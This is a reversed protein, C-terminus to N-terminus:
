KLFESQKKEVNKIASKVNEITANYSNNWSRTEAKSLDKDESLLKKTNELNTLQENLINISDKYTNYVDDAKSDYGLNTISDEVERIKEKAGNISVNHKFESPKYHTDEKDVGCGTFTLLPIILLILLYKIRKKM